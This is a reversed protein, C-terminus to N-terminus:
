ACTFGQEVFWQITADLFYEPTSAGSTIGLTSYANWDHRSLESVECILKAHAGTAEATEVLRQSNSSNPSGLVIMCECRYALDEVAHQRDRTAYCIDAHPPFVLQAYREHLASMVDEVQAEGLTTQTVVAIPQDDPLALHLVEEANEIVHVRDPAEGVVGIVEEHQRYGIFVINIGTAAFRRVEEHVKSVFPCTADIVQLHRAEALQRLAPSVGHASFLLRSGEPVDEVREVFIMGRASLRSVVHQNHVIENLCYIVDGKTKQQLAQEAMNVARAVGTCFGHPHAVFLSRSSLLASPDSEESEDESADFLGPNEDELSNIIQEASTLYAKKSNCDKCCPVVNGKTSSGGRSVPVIHDMTVDAPDVKEHCYHCVGLQCQQQWWLSKKLDRARERERRVHAPDSNIDIWDSM